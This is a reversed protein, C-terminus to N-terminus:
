EIDRINEKLYRYIRSIPARKMSVSKFYSQINEFKLCEIIQNLLKKNHIYFYAESAYQGIFSPTVGLSGSGWTCIAYDFNTNINKISGDRRYEKITVDKLKYNPKKNLLGCSPRKYINFCCHLSINSYNCVGLDESYILDFEYMQLTNNLQSIPQIFAIYDCINISKKFFKISLNNSRGFPPNGIILRGKKYSLDLTLFNQKIVSEHEPEIDYAICNKIRNSFAGNGASPEIIESISDGLIEFTKSICIDVVHSPTYYKDLMIKM